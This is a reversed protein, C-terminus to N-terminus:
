AAEPYELFRASVSDIGVKYRLPGVGTQSSISAELRQSGDPEDIGVVRASVTRTRPRDKLLENEIARALEAAANGDTLRGLWRSIGLGFDRDEESGQLTGPITVLRHLHNAAILLRGSMYRGSKLSELCLIDRGYDDPARPPEEVPEPLEAVLQATYDSAISM